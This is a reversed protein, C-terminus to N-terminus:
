SSGVLIVEEDIMGSSRFAEWTKPGGEVLISAIGYFNDGHSRGDKAATLVKWLDEWLFRGDRVPVQDQTIVMTREGLVRSRPPMRKNPDLVLRWPQVIKKNTRVTLQPDDRLVTGVGVLIADVNARLHEHSWADQETSTIRKPSGDPNAISGDKARAQKLIIWPRNKTRLSIFGRNFYECEARMVPGVVHVGASRLAEIGKGSVRPDPDVIGFVVNKIGKEIIIETCPPTQGTHCCPELNVYLIDKSDIKHDFKELLQRESHINGYGSYFGTDLVKGDRVLLSGVLPNIGTKGRGQAALELCQRIFYGHIM